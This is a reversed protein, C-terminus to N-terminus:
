ERDTVSELSDFHAAGEPYEKGVADIVDGRSPAISPGNEAEILIALEKKIPKLQRDLTIPKWAERVAQHVVM